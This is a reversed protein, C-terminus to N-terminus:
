RVNYIGGTLNVDISSQVGFAIRLIKGAQTQFFAILYCYWTGFGGVTSCNLKNINSHDLNVFREDLDVRDVIIYKRNLTTDKLCIDYGSDRICM